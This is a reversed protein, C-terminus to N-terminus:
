PQQRFWSQCCLCGDSDHAIRQIGIMPTCLGDAFATPPWIIVPQTGHTGKRRKARRTFKIVWPELCEKAGSKQTQKGMIGGGFKDQGVDETDMIM